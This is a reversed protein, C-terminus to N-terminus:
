SEDENRKADSYSIQLFTSKKFFNVKFYTPDNWTKTLEGLVLFFNERIFMIQTILIINETNKRLILKKPCLARGKTSKLGFIKEKLFVNHDSGELHKVYKINFEIIQIIM